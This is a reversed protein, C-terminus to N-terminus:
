FVYQNEVNTRLSYMKKASFLTDIHRRWDQINM